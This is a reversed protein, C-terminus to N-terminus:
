SRDSLLHRDEASTAEDAITREAPKSRWRSAAMEREEAIRAQVERYSLALTTITSLGDRPFAYYRIKHGSIKHTKEHRLELGARKLIENLQRMPKKHFDNRLPQGLVEEIITRNERCIGVFRTLTDVSVMVKDNIGDSSALGAVRILVAILREPETKQLRGKPTATPQLLFSVLDDGRDAVPLLPLIGALTSIHDLLKGDRNMEVLCEDLPVGVTREFYNREHIIREEDSLHAGGEVKKDLEIYDDNSVIPAALLRAAREDALLQRAATVPSTSAAGDVWEVAWGNAERLSCFLEVLRNKSARQLATVHACLNLLPDDRDYEVLGDPRPRGQVAKPVVYARALDDKIVDVSSTFNFTAPNIWVDVRGPHRVRSLQQDIDTHTNVFPYFFGFVRDVLVQDNPFTIDIGTGISPTGLVVQIRCFEEKINALFRVISADRSNDRTIVRIAFQDGCETQIMRKAADIFRKSNSVIFCREGRKVAAVVQQELFASSKHLYITRKQM